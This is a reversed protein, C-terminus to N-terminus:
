VELNEQSILIKLISPSHLHSIGVPLTMPSANPVVPGGNNHVNVGTSM